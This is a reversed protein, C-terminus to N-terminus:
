DLPKPFSGHFNDFSERFPNGDGLAGENRVWKINRRIIKAPNGGLAVNEEPIRRTVVSCAGVVSNSGVSASKTLYAREGLWVHDGIFVGSSQDLFAASDNDFILHPSEGCRITVDNAFMCDRGITLRNGSTFLFFRGSREVSLHEGIDVVTNHAPIHNGCSISLQRAVVMKGIQIVNNDGNIRLVITSPQYSGDIHVRNGRGTVQGTLTVNEGIKLDTTEDAQFTMNQTNLDQAVSRHAQIHLISHKYPQCINQAVLAADFGFTRVNSQFSVSSYQLSLHALGDVRHAVRM